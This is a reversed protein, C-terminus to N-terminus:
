LITKKVFLVNGMDWGNPIAEIIVVFGNDELFSRYENYQAVDKYTEKTSVETHVVSVTKFIVKSEKLMKLEFGQMDLWLMDIKVINNEAAWTDLTSTKVQIKKNFLTGPHDKLHEIPELLSSSADSQGESIYFTLMGNKDALALQYSTISQYPKTNKLLRTYLEPVPEFCFIRAQRFIKILAVSDSGDHSGCDIIVPTAPLYKKLVVKSIQERKKNPIAFKEFLFLAIHYKVKGIFKRM